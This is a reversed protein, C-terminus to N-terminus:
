AQEEGPPQKRTLKAYLPWSEPKEHWTRLVSDVIERERSGETHLADILNQVDSPVDRYRSADLDLYGLILDLQSAGEMKVTIQEWDYLCGPDMSTETGKLIAMGGLLIALSDGPYQNWIADLAAYAIKYTQPIM